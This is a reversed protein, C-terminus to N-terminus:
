VPLLRYLRSLLDSLISKRDKDQELSTVAGLRIMKDTV